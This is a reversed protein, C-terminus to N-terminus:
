WAASTLGRVRKAHDRYGPGESPLFHGRRWERLYAGFGSGINPANRELVALITSWDQRRGSILCRLLEGTHAQRDTPPLPNQWVFQLFEVAVSIHSKLDANAGGLQRFACRYYEPKGQVLANSAHVLTAADVSTFEHGACALHIIADCYREHSLLRQEKAIMLVPQLWSGAVGCTGAAISRYTQDEVLLMRKSGEAALMADLFHVAVVPNIGRLEEPVDRSAEAILLDCEKELWGIDEELLKRYSAREEKTSERFIMKGDRWGLEGTKGAGFRRM